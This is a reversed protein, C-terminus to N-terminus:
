SIFNILSVKISKGQDNEGIKLKSHGFDHLLRTLDWRKNIWQKTSNTIMFPVHLAQLLNYKNLDFEEFDVYILKPDTIPNNLM